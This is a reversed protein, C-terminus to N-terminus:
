QFQFHANQFGNQFGGFGGFGGFDPFGGAFQQGAGFDSGGGNFGGNFGGGNCQDDYDRRKDDNSLTEYAENLEQMKEMVQNESLKSGKYKDPHYKKSLQRYAKRIERKDATPEVGLVKYLDKEPQQQPQRPQRREMIIEDHLQSALKVIRSTRGPVSEDTHQLIQSLLEYAQGSNGQQYELHAQVLVAPPYDPELDRVQACVKAAAEYNQREALSQCRAIRINDILVGEDDDSNRPIDYHKLLKRTEKIVNNMKLKHPPSKEILKQLARLQKTASKCAAADDDFSVCRRLIQLAQQRQDLLVFSGVAARTASESDSKDIQVVLTLDRIADIPKGRSFHCQARAKLTEVSKPAIELMRSFLICDVDDELAQENGLELFERSKSVIEVCRADSCNKPNSSALAQDILGLRLYLSAVNYQAPQFEPDAALSKRFDGLAQVDHGLALQETARRFFDISTLQTQESCLSESALSLLLLPLM